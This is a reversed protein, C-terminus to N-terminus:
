VILRVVINHLFGILRVVIPGFNKHEFILVAVVVEKLHILAGFYKLVWGEFLVYREFIQDKVYVKVYSCWFWLYILCCCCRLMILPQVIKTKLSSISFTFVLPNRNSIWRLTICVLLIQIQSIPQFTKTSKGM